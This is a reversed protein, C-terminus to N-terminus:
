KKLEKIEQKLSDVEAKLEKIAEIFVGAMNGYAVSYKGQNDQSVVEPLVDLVEQAIVGVKTSKDNIDKRTYTVGRLKNVKDLAGDITVINEKVRRDSFAIVDSTARIDGTVDFAYSIGSTKKIGVNGASTIYIATNGMNDIKMPNGSGSSFGIRAYQAGNSQSDIFTLYNFNEQTNFIQIANAEGAKEVNLVGIPNNPYSGNKWTGPGMDIRAATPVNIIGNGDISLRNSNNTRFIIQDNDSFGFFTNTDGNHRIYSDLGIEGAVDLTYVPETKGIGILPLSGSKKIIMFAIGGTGLQLPVTGSHGTGGMVYAANDLLGTFDPTSSAGNSGVNLMNQTGDQLFRMVPSHTEDSNDTDANVIIEVDGTDKIRMGSGTIDLKYSPNTDGIGVRQQDDIRMAENASGGAIFQIKGDDTGARLTLLNTTSNRYLTNQRQGNSTQTRFGNIDGNTSYSGIWIEGSGSALIKLSGSQPAIGVGLSDRLYGGGLGNIYFEEAPSGNTDSVGRIFKFSTSRGTEEGITLGCGTYGGQGGIISVGNAATYHTLMVDAPYNATSTTDPDTLSYGDFRVKGLVHLREAPNCNIGVQGYMYTESYSEGVQLVTGAANGELARQGTFYIRNNGGRLDISGGSQDITLSQTPNIAGSGSGIGVRGNSTVTMVKTDNTSAAQFIRTASSTAGARILLGQGDANTNYIRSILGTTSTEASFHYAPTTSQIGFKGDSLILKKNASADAVIFDQNDNSSIGLLVGYTGSDDDQISIWAQNDGSKFKAVVNTTPHFVSLRFEPDTDGIGVQGNNKIRMSETWSIDSDATSSAAYQFRTIDDNIFIRAAGGAVLRKDVNSSNIYFNNSFISDASGTERSLMSATVGVGLRRWVTSGDKTLGGINIDNSKSSRLVNSKNFGGAGDDTLQKIALESYGSYNYSGLEFGHTNADQTMQIVADMEGSDGSNNSDGRLYLGATGTNNVFISNNAAFSTTTTLNTITTTGFSNSNGSATVSASFAGSSAILAGVTTNGFSNSNGSATISASVSLAGTFTTSSPAFNVNTVGGLTIGISNSGSDYFGSDTDGVQIAPSAASGGSTVILTGNQIEVGTDRVLLKRSGNALLGLQHNAPRYMGTNVDGYFGYDANTTLGRSTSLYTGTKTGDGAIIVLNDNANDEGNFHFSHGGGQSLSDLHTYELTGNQVFTTPLTSFNIKARVDNAAVAQTTTHIVLGDNSNITTQGYLETNGNSNFFAVDTLTSVNTGSGHITFSDDDAVFYKLELRNNTISNTLGFGQNAGRLLISSAHEGLDQSVLDIQCENGVMRMGTTHTYTAYFYSPSNWGSTGTMDVRSTFTSVGTVSLTNRSTVNGADLGGLTYLNGSTDLTMSRTTDKVFQLNGSANSLDNPSEFIRWLNGNNWNIGENGGPDNFTLNNVNIINGNGMSITNGSMTLTGSMTDGAKLVNLSAAGTVSGTLDGNITGVVYLDDLFKSEGGIFLQSATSDWKISADNATDNGFYLKLNDVMQPSRGYIIRQEGGDLRMYETLGAPDSGDDLQFKIDGDDVFSNFILDGSNIRVINNTTHYIKLDSSDGFTLESDDTFNMDRDVRNPVDNARGAGFVKILGNSAHSKIVVAIKQVQSGFATPKTATLLGVTESVYLEDGISFGSTDIGSVAGFMVAEGEAQDAITENLVGIGPMSSAVNADAAIVEIVNGSPPTATPAAHVVVGKALSAGSVNKVTVDIRKAVNAEFDIWNTGSGTSSLLQGSTGADGSSDKITGDVQLNGDIDVNGTFTANNSTDFYLGTTDNSGLYLSDGSGAFIAVADTGVNKIVVQSDADPNFTATPGNVVISGTFTSLGTAIKLETVASPQLYIPKNEGGNYDSQILLADAGRIYASADDNTFTLQDASINIVGSFTGTTGSIANGTINGFTVNSTTAVAQGIAIQGNTITVGTGATFSARARATTFYQNVTGEVLDNTDHNSLSSVTGTVNGELDANLLSRTYGTGTVDVTTTPEVQLGEYLRFKDTSADWFLGTYKTTASEVYKGFFGIDLTNSTNDKALKILPDEVALDEVNLYTLTGNVTLNGSIILNGGIKANGSTHFQYAPTIGIGLRTGSLYLPTDNGVGDSLLKPTASLNSNDGIKIIANYTDQVRLGTYSTAM